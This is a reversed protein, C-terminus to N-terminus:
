AIVIPDGAKEEISDVMGAFALVIEEITMNTGVARSTIDEKDRNVLLLYFGYGEKGAELNRSLISTGLPVFKDSFGDLLKEVKEVFQQSQKDESTSLERKKNQQKDM